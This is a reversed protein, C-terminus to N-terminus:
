STYTTLTTDWTRGILGLSREQTQGILNVFHEYIAEEKQQHNTSIGNRTNLSPIHLRRKRNNAHLM